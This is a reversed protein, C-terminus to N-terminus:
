GKARRSKREQAMVKTKNKIVPIDSPGVKAMGIIDPDLLRGLKGPIELRKIIAEKSAASSPKRLRETNISKTTMKGDSLRRLHVTYPSCVETVMYPGSYTPQLKKSTAPALLNPIYLYCLDGVRYETCSTLKKDYREKMKKHSSLLNQSAIKQAAQRQEILHIVMEREDKFDTRKMIELSADISLATQKGFILFNPAFGTSQSVTNNLAYVVSQLYLNWNAQDNAIFSRLANEIAQNSREVLGQSKSHLSSGHIQKIGYKSCFLKMLKSTFVSGNDSALNSTCGHICIVKDIYDRIFSASNLDKCDWATIHRSAHDVCVQIYRSGNNAVPLPGVTDVTVTSYTTTIPERIKMPLKNFKPRKNTTLCVHCTAIFNAINTFMNVWYYRQKILNYTKVIGLHGGLPSCHITELLSSIWKLPVVVQLEPNGSQSFLSASLKFLINDVIIFNDHSLLIQRSVNNDDPLNGQNIYNIMAACFVDNSQDRLLQERTPALKNHRTLLILAKEALPTVKTKIKLRKQSATTRSILPKHKNPPRGRRKPTEVVPAEVIKKNESKDEYSITPDGEKLKRARTIANLKAKGGVAKSRKKVLAYKGKPVYGAAKAKEDWTIDDKMISRPKFLLIPSVPTIDENYFSKIVVIDSFRTRKAPLNIKGQLKIPLPEDPQVPYPRRSLLDAVVNCKGQLYKVTFDYSMFLDLWRALRGSTISEKKNFLSVLATHDSYITFHAWETYYHFKSIAYVIALLERETTSYRREQVTLGRGIFEIPRQFGLDDAQCIVAGLSYGSADCYITFEKEYDPFQLVAEACIARKIGEFSRQCEETWIFAGTGKTLDYLVTMIRSFDKIFRKYYQAMGNFSKMESRNTPTPFTKLPWLKDPTPSLGSENIRYGLFDVETLGFECKEPKFKLNGKTFLKFVEDLDELHREWTPSYVCVDDVYALANRYKCTSMLREMIDQYRLGSINMGMPISNMIYRKGNASFATIYKSEEALPIQHYAGYVDMKSFFKSKSQGITSILDEARPFSYSFTRLCKNTCRYDIVVRWNNTISLDSGPKAVLFANANFDSPYTLESIVGQRLQKELLEKMMVEKKPSLRYPIRKQAPVDEKLELTITSDTKRGIVNENNVFVDRNSALVKNLQELQQATLKDNIKYKPKEDAPQLQKLVQEGCNIPTFLEDKINPVTKIQEVQDKDIPIVMSNLLPNFHGIKVFKRLKIPKDTMNALVIRIKNTSDPIKVMIHKVLYETPESSSETVGTLGTLNAHTNVVGITHLESEAPITVNRRLLIETNVVEVDNNFKIEGHYKRLFNIGLIIQHNLNRLVYLSHTFNYNGVKFTLKIVSKAVITTGDAITVRTNAPRVNLNDQKEIIRNCLSENIFSLTSGTDILADANIAGISVELIGEDIPETIYIRSHNNEDSFFNTRLKIFTSGEVISELKGERSEISNDIKELKQKM